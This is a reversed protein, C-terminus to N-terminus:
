HASETEMMSALARKLRDRIEMKLILNDEVKGLLITALEIIEPAALQTAYHLMERQREMNAAARSVANEAQELDSQIDERKM